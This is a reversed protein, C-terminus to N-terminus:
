IQPRLSEQYRWKQCFFVVSFRTLSSLSFGRCFYLVHNLKPSTVCFVCSFGGSKGAQTDREFRGSDQCFLYNLCPSLGQPNLANNLLWGGVVSNIYDLCEPIRCCLYSHSYFRSDKFTFQSLNTSQLCRTRNARM